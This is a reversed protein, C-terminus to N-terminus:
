YYPEGFGAGGGTNLIDGV